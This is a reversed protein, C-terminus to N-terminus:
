MVSTYGSAIAKKILSLNRGHDLHLAVPIRSNKAVAQVLAVLNELGAYAIAGESTQIIVPSRELEAAKVIALLFELNSINFAPVAYKGKQAKALISKTTVLM